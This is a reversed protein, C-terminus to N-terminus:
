SGVEVVYDSVHWPKKTLGAEAYFDGIQDYRDAAMGADTTFFPLNREILQEAVAPELSLQAAALAVFEDRNAPDQAWEIAELYTKQIRELVEPNEEAYDRTSAYFLSAWDMAPPGTLEQISFPQVAIDQALALTVGPELTLAADISGSQMAALTTAPLGTAIYAAKDPDLGAEEFLGRAVFEASAGKAVVGIKAGELDKMAGEWGSAANPLPFDKRVIIDFFERDMVSQFGVLDAGNDLLPYINAPNFGTVNVSGALMAAALEPGTQVQVCEIDLGNEEALGSEVAWNMPLTSVTPACGLNVKIAELPASATTTAGAAATTTAGGAATTAAGATTASAAATTAAPTSSDDDDGCAAAILSLMATLALAGTTLRSRTM